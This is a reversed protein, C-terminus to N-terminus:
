KRMNQARGVQTELKVVHVQSWSYITLCLLALPWVPIYDAPPQSPSAALSHVTTPFGTCLMHSLQKTYQM